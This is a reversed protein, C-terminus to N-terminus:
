RCGTPRGQRGRFMEKVAIHMRRRMRRGRHSSRSQRQPRTPCAHRPITNATIAPGLAPFATPRRSRFRRRDRAERIAVPLWWFRQWSRSFGGNSCIESRESAVSERNGRTLDGSRAVRCGGWDKQHRGHIGSVGRERMGTSNSFLRKFRGHLAKLGWYRGWTRPPGVEGHLPCVLRFKNEDVVPPRGSQKQDFYRRRGM